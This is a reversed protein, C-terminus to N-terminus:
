SCNAPNSPDDSGSGHAEGIDSDRSSETKSLDSGDHGSNDETIRGGISQICEEATTPRNADQISKLKAQIEDNTIAGKDKLVLIIAITERTKNLLDAQMKSM